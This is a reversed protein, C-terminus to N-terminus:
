TISTSSHKSLERFKIEQNYVTCEVKKQRIRALKGAFTLQNQLYTIMKKIERSVAGKFLVTNWCVPVPATISLLVLSKATNFTLTNFVWWWDAACKKADYFHAKPLM